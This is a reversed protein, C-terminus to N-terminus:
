HSATVIMAVAVSGVMLLVAMRATQGWGAVAEALHDREVQLKM